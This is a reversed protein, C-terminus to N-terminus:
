WPTVHVGYVSEIEKVETYYGSGGCVNKEGGSWIGVAWNGQGWVPGGSDGEYNCAGEVRTMNGLSAGGQYTTKAKLQKVTGCSGGSAIGSHCIFEGVFSAQSGAVPWSNYQVEEPRPLAGWVVIHGRWGWNSVWWNSDKVRILGGDANGGAYYFGEQNGLENQYGNSTEASWPGSAQLCHGADMVFKNGFTNGTAAFGATCSVNSSFSWTEVGAHLPPDCAAKLDKVFVCAAPGVDFSPPNAEAVRIAVPDAAARARVDARTEAATDAAVEVVVSNTSTDIGSRARRKEVLGGIAPAMRSQAAELEALSSDVLTTRFEGAGLGRGDFEAAAVAADRKSLVPVVFQGERNDFWVGAYDEGLRRELTGTIGAARAQLDLRRAAEGAGVDFQEGYEDVSLSDLDQAEAAVPRAFLLLAGAALVRGWHRRLSGVLAREVVSM